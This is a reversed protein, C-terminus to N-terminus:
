ELGDPVVPCMWSHKVPDEGCMRICLLQREEKSLAEEDGYHFDTKTWDVGGARIQGERYFSDGGNDNGGFVVVHPDRAVELSILGRSQHDVYGSQADRFDDVDLEPVLAGYQDMVEEITRNPTGWTGEGIRSVLFYFLKDRLTDLRFDEWGFDRDTTRPADDHGLIPESLYVLSHSSSSNTAFGHRLNKIWSM